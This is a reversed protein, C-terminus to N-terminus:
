TTKRGKHDGLTAVAIGILICATGLGVRSSVTEGLFLWGWFVALIPIIFTQYSVVTVDIRKMLWFFVAFAVVSGAVALYLITAWTTGDYHLPNSREVPVAVANVLAAGVCFPILLSVVPHYGGSHKKILVSALAAAFVSALVALMGLVEDGGGFHVADAFIIWVGAIGGAIGVIKRMTLRDGLVLRAIVAVMFPLTAYLVATLGSSIHQEGWYVLVYPIALHLVGLVVSITLFARTRPVPLRGAIVIITIVAAAVVFRAGVASMPPAGRLGVKIAM